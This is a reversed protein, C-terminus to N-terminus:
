CGDCTRPRKPGTTTGGHGGPRTACCAACGGRTSGPCRCCTPRWRWPRPGEDNLLRAAGTRLRVLEAAPTAELVAVHLAEPGAAAHIRRRAADVEDVEDVAGPGASGRVVVCRAEGARSQEACARLM